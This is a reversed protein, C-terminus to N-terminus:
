KNAFKKGSGKYAFSFIKETTLRGTEFSRRIDDAACTAKAQLLQSRWLPLLTTEVSAIGSILASNNAAMNDILQRNKVAVIQSMNMDSLQHEMLQKESASLAAGSSILGTIKKELALLIDSEKKLKDSLTRLLEDTKYLETLAGTLESQFGKLKEETEDIRELVRALYIYKKIGSVDPFDETSLSCAAVTLTGCIKVTPDNQSLRFLINAAAAINKRSIDAEAILSTIETQETMEYM